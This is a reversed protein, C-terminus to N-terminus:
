GNFRTYIHNCGCLCLMLLLNGKSLSPVLLMQYQGVQGPHIVRGGDGRAFSIYILTLKDCGPPWYLPAIRIGNENVCVCVCTSRARTNENLWPAREQSIGNPRSIAVADLLRWLNVINTNYM